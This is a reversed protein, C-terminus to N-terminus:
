RVDIDKAASIMIYPNQFDIANLLNLSPNTTIDYLRLEIIYSGAHLPIVGHFLSEDQDLTSESAFKQDVFAIEDVIKRTNQDRVLAVWLYWQGKRGDKITAKADIIAQNTDAAVDFERMVFDSTATIEVANSPYPEGPGASVKTATSSEEQSSSRKAMLSDSTLYSAIALFILLSIKTLRIRTM